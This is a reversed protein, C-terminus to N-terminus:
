MHTCSLARLLDHARDTEGTQQLHSVPEGLPPMVHVHMVLQKAQAVSIEFIDPQAARGSIM